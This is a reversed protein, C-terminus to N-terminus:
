LLKIRKKKIYLPHHKSLVSEFLIVENVKFSIDINIKEVRKKLVFYQQKSPIRSRAITLHPIFKMTQNGLKNDLEELKKERLFALYITIKNQIFLDLHTSYLYFSEQDFLAHEISSGLQKYDRIEGYFRITIHYNDEPIWNIAPYQKKLDTILGAIEKKTKIPLDIALFTRM